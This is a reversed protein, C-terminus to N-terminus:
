SARRPEALWESRSQPADNVVFRGPPAGAYRTFDRVLHAQDAYGCQYAITAFDPRDVRMAALARRFRLVSAM